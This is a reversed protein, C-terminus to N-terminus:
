TELHGMKPTPIMYSIKSIKAYMDERTHTKDDNEIFVESVNIKNPIDANGATETSYNSSVTTATQNDASPFEPDGHM